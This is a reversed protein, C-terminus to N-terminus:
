ETAPPQTQYHESAKLDALFEAREDSPIATVQEVGHMDLIRNFEGPPFGSGAIAMIEADVDNETALDGVLKDTDDPPPPPPPEDGQQREAEAQKTQAPNAGEHDLIARILDGKKGGDVTAGSGQVVDRLRPVTMRLLEIERASPKGKPKLRAADAKDAFRYGLGVFRVVDDENVHRTGVGGPLVMVVRPPRITGRPNNFIIEAM